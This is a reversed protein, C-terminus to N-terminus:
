LAAFLETDFEDIQIGKEFFGVVDGQMGRERILRAAHDALFFECFHFVTDAKDIRGAAGDDVDFRESGCQFGAFHGPSADVYPRIFRQLRFIIWEEAHRIDCEGRVEARGRLFRLGADGSIDGDADCLREM